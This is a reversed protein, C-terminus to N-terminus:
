GTLKLIFKHLSAYDHVLSVISQPTLVYFARSKLQCYYITQFM